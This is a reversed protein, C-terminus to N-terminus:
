EPPDGEKKLMVEKAMKMPVSIYKRELHDLVKELVERSGKDLNGIDQAFVNDVATRRIEKVKKPVDRMALEVERERHNERFAEINAAIIERCHVLEKERAQKNREAIRRLDEIAIFHVPFQESISPALDFPLALDVLVKKDQEGNLLKQYLETTIVPDSAGTCTILVDFGKDHGGIDELAHAEGGAIAAVERANEITRNYVSLESFGHKQLFRTMNRITKGAGVLLFRTDGGLELERLKHYALSVVSVPRRSIHTETYIQKAVKITRNLLLRLLEGTLGLKRNREYANRVQTIIEREGVVMSDLSSTVNFLHAVAGEGEHYEVGKVARDIVRSSANPAFTSLFREIFPADLHQESTFIFEVRNCTALFMLEELEMAERFAPLRDAEEEESLHFNGILSLDLHNHTLAIVKLKDM